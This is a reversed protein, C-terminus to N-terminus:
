AFFLKNITLQKVVLCDRRHWLGPLMMLSFVFVLSDFALQWRSMHRETAAVSHTTAYGLALCVVDM